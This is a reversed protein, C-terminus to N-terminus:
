DCLPPFPSRFATPHAFETPGRFRAIQLAISNVCGVRGPRRGRRPPRAARLRPAERGSEVSECAAGNGPAPRGHARANVDGPRPTADLGHGASTLTGNRGESTPVRSRAVPRAARNRLRAGRGLVQAAPRSRRRSPGGGVTWCRLLVGHGCLVFLEGAASVLGRLS